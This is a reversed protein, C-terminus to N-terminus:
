RRAPWACRDGDVQAVGVLRRQGLRFPPQVLEDLPDGGLSPTVTSRARQGAELRDVEIGVHDVEDLRRGPSEAVGRAPHRAAGAVVGLHQGPETRGRHDERRADSPQAVVDGLVGFRGVELGAGVYQEVDYEVLEACGFIGVAGKIGGRGVGDSAVSGEPRGFMANRAAPPSMTMTSPTPKRLAPPPPEDGSASPGSVPTVVVTRTSEAAGVVTTSGTVVTGVTAGSAAM